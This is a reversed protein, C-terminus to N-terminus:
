SNHRFFSFIVHGYKRSFQFNPHSSFDVTEGHELVFLGEPRLIKGAFIATVLAQHIELAYPPDAFILDYTGATREVFKVADSKLVTLRDEWQHKQAFEQIFRVCKFNKDVATVRGAQRSAFEFSINGTGAFLDLIDLEFLECENVLLNFLGEKAFDTTPRSPFGKPPNFRHRKLEGSIIRM